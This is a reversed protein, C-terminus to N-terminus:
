AVSSARPRGRGNKAWPPIVHSGRLTQSPQHLRRAAGAAISSNELGRRAATLMGSAAARQMLWAAHVESIMDAAENSAAGDVGMSIPVGAAQLALIPAIGSGLRSFTDSVGRFATDMRGASREVARTAKAMDQELRAFRAELDISLTAVAM